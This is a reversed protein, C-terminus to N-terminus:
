GGILRTVWDILTVAAISLLGAGLFRQSRTGPLRGSWSTWIAIWAFALSYPALLFGGSNVRFSTVWQARMFHAWSTTM